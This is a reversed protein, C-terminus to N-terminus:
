LHRRWFEAMAYVAHVLEQGDPGWDYQSIFGTMVYGYGQERSPVGHEGAVAREAQLLTVARAALEAGRGDGCAQRRRRLAGAAEIARDCLRLYDEPAPGKTIAAWDVQEGGRHDPPTM